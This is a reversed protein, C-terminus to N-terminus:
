RPWLWSTRCAMGPRPTLASAAQSPRSLPSAYVANGSRRESTVEHMAGAPGVSRGMTQAAGPRSRRVTSANRSSSPSSRQLSDLQHGTVHSAPDGCGVRLPGRRPGSRRATGRRSARSRRGPHPGGRPRCRPWVRRGPRGPSPGSPRGVERQLLVRLVERLPLGRPEGLDLFRVLREVARVEEFLLESLDVADPGCGREHEELVPQLPGPAAAECWEDLEDPRDGLLAGADMCGDFM